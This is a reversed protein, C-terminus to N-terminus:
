LMVNVLCGFKSFDISKKFPFPTSLIYKPKKNTASFRKKTGKPKLYRDM